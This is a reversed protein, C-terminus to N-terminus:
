SYSLLSYSGPLTERRPCYYQCEDDRTTRRTPEKRSVCVCVYVTVIRTAPQEPRNDYKYTDRGRPRDIARDQRQPEDAELAPLADSPGDTRREDWGIRSSWGPHEQIKARCMGACHLFRQPTRCSRKKPHDAALLAISGKTTNDVDGM